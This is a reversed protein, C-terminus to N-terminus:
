KRMTEFCPQNFQLYTNDGVRVVMEMKSAFSMPVINKWPYTHYNFTVHTVLELAPRWASNLQMGDECNLARSELWMKLSEQIVREGWM